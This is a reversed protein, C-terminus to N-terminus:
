GKQIIQIIDINSNEIQIVGHNTVMAPTNSFRKSYFDGKESEDQGLDEIAAHVGINNLLKCFEERKSLPHFTDPESDHM